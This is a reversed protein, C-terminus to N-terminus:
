ILTSLIEDITKIKEEIHKIEKETFCKRIKLFEECQKKHAKLSTNIVREHKDELILERYM